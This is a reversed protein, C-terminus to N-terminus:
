KTIIPVLSLGSNVCSNPVELPAPPSPTARKRSSARCMFWNMTCLARSMASSTCHVEPAMYTHEFRSCRNLTGESVYVVMVPVELGNIPELVVVDGEEHCARTGFEEQQM